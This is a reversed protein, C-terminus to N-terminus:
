LRISLRRVRRSREIGGVTVREANGITGLASDFPLRTGKRVARSNGAQKMSADRKVGVRLSTGAPWRQSTGDALTRGILDRREDLRAMSVNRFGGNEDLKAATAGRRDKAARGPAQVRGADLAGEVRL